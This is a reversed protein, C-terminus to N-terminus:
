LVYLVSAFNITVFNEFKLDFLAKIFRSFANGQQQGQAPQVGVTPMQVAGTNYGTGGSPYPQGAPQPASAYPQPAVPGTNAQPAQGAAGYPTQQSGAGSPGQGPTPTQGNPNGNPPYNATM